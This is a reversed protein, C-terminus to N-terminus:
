WDLGFSLKFTRTQYQNWSTLEGTDWNKGYDAWNTWNFVNLIDARVKLKLDTGTDWTRSLSLDFQKFGLTGGPTFSRITIPNTASLDSPWVDGWRRIQTALTLKGSLSFGAPLDAFGSVVLRHRPTYAGGYWSHDVWYWGYEPDKEHINQKADTYTYAISLSWPSDKSYAKDIGLLLNNSRSEQGNIGLILGGMGPVGGGTWPSGADDYYSGDALRNGRILLLGDKYNIRQLTVSTNWDIGWLEVANRMGLSFQDSHPVKLDNRFMWVERGSTGSSDLSMLYNRDLLSSTWDLCNSASTSCPHETTNIYYARTPFTAKTQELQFYDFLNRDYARGAGGFVVHREDDFLDYSFGLRPQWANKFAHRNSGTGIFKNIDIGGLALTQAYTQGVPAGTQTDQSNIAAVVDADTVLDLYAPTKEYDWRVGLNLTLKDTVEWDDQIYIGFQKNKSTVKGAATGAVASGFRVYYPTDPQNIDYYFQPNYPQQEVTELDVEKYKVGMKLTHGEWGFWSLDDQFGWGKQGKDQLGGNGAGTSLLVKGDDATGDTLVYGNGYNVPEVTWYAKEYTLHADNLWNESSYQWRLDYRDESVHTDTGYSSTQQSGVNSVGKEDRRKFTLELLNSENLSWDLKGFYLDEHFPVHDNGILSQLNAPLDATTYGEGPFIDQPAEYEKGEYSVFFHAVDKIIPGGFAIGYQEDSSPTKGTSKESERTERWDQNSYDWFASGHFENTGSKTVASVAASSIQDYEAKYNSTIVKYEGIALQPFPNGRSSDQGTIGGKIVYNKQGVGDIYVNINNASQVGGRLKTSGSSPDQEFKMGPVTDAFALFNRTTQPLAEIQRTTVYTAVESTRTEVATPATVQVADLTTAAGGATEKEGGVGLNLLAVQGVQVVLAQQSSQGDAQVSIVYRGPPLGAINYSGDASAQVTRSLGTSQNTATIVAGAAPASDSHVTGRITAATSQAFAPATSLALCSILACSLLKRAPRHGTQGAHTRNM